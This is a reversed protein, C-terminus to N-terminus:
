FRAEYSAWATVEDLAVRWKWEVADIMLFPREDPHTIKELTGSIPESRGRVCVQVSKGVWQGIVGELSPVAPNKM